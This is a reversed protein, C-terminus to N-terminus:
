ALRLGDHYIPTFSAANGCDDGGEIEGEDKRWGGIAGQLGNASPKASEYPWTCGLTFPQAPVIYRIPCQMVTFRFGAGVVIEVSTVTASPCQVLYEVSRHVSGRFRKNWFWFLQGQIASVKLCIELGQQRECKARSLFCRRKAINTDTFKLINQRDAPM